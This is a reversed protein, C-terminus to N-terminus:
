LSHGTSFRAFMPQEGPVRPALFANTGLGSSVWAFATELNFLGKKKSRCRFVIRQRRCILLLLGMKVLPPSARQKVQTRFLHAALPM